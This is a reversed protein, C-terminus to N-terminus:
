RKRTIINEAVGVCSLFDDLTHLLSKLSDAGMRAVIAGGEVKSEVYGENDLEVSKQVKLADEHRSFELRVECSVTHRDAGEAM